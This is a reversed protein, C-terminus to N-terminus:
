RTMTTESNTRKVSGLRELYPIYSDQRPDPEETL